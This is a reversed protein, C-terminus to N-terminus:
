TNREYSVAMATDQYLELELDFFDNIEDNIRSVMNRLYVFDEESEAKRYYVPQLLLSRYVRNRKKRLIDATEASEGMFDAACLKEVSHYEKVDRPYSRTAALKRQGHRARPKQGQCAPIARKFQRKKRYIIGTILQYRPSIFIGRQSNGSSTRTAHSGIFLMTM